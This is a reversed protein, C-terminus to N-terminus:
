IIELFLKMLKCSQTADAETSVRNCSKGLPVNGNADENCLAALSSFSFGSNKLMGSM